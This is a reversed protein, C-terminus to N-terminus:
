NGPIIREVRSLPVIETLGSDNYRICVDSGAIRIEGYIIRGDKLKLSVEPEDSEFSCLGKRSSSDILSDNKFGSGTDSKKIFEDLSDPEAPNPWYESDAKYKSIKSNDTLGATGNVALSQGAEVQIVPSQQDTLKDNLDTSKQSDTGSRRSVQFSGSKVALNQGGDSRVSLRAETGTMRYITNRSIWLIGDEAINYDVSSIESKVFIRGFSVETQTGCRSVSFLGPGIFIQSIPNSNPNNKYNNSEINIPSNQSSASKELILYAGKKLFIQSDPLAHGTKPVNSLDNIKIDGNHSLIHFGDSCALDAYVLRGSESFYWFSISLIMIIVAAVSMIIQLKKNYFGVKKGSGSRSASKEPFSETVSANIRDLFAEMRLLEQEEELSLSNENNKIDKTKNYNKNRKKVSTYRV